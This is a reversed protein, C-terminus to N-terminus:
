SRGRRLSAAEARLEEASVKLQAEQRSLGSRDILDAIADIHDAVQRHLQTRADDASM